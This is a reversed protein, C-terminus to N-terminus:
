PLLMVDVSAGARLGDGDPILALGDAAALASLQHSSQGGALRAYSRGDDGPECTVRVLHLKGDRTRTIAEGAVASVMSRFLRRHGAMKRLAPRVFLEFSVASSVPNGPLGFVPVPGAMGFALPKAPRVAVQWWRSRDLGDIVARVYDYDGVSVGGTVLVAQCGDGVAGLVRASITDEDDPATGLDVTPFGSARLLGLLMPGNADRIQGPSLPGGGTALEDGTSLVGVVPAPVVAVTSAGVSAALGIWAPSMITGAEAVTGGARLDSGARRVFDGPAASRVIVVASGGDGEVVSTEEIMVVADAGAPMPAGTMIRAAEGPGVERDPVSGAAITAVVRLEAPAAATDNARVAFGDMASNAFPPVDHPAVVPEALVLGLADALDLRHPELTAVEALIADRVTELPVLAGSM